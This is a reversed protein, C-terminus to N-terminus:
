QTRPALFNPITPSGLYFKWALYASGMVCFVAALMLIFNLFQRRRERREIEPGIVDLLERETEEREIRPGDGLM